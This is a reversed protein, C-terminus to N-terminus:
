ICKIVFFINKQAAWENMFKLIKKNVRKRLKIKNNWWYWKWKYM